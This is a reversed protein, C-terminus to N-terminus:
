RVGLVLEIQPWDRPHWVYATIGAREFVGLWDTQAPTLKGRGAKLEAVIVRRRVLVLDPFGAGDGQVATRWGRATRAPRFHAARWGLRKALELVQATFEAETIAPLQPAEKV